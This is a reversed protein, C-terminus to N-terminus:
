GLAGCREDQDVATLAAALRAAVTQPSKMWAFHDASVGDQDAASIAILERPALTMKALLWQLSAQPGLWDADLRLSRVPVRLRALLAEFDEGMGAASYRGRRCSRAWDAIVGRAENGGFGLRRGPFHGLLAALGQALTAFLAIAWPSRFMRWYPAGSAVLLLGEPAQPHLAAYLTAIQGGLSHGGLWCRAGPFAVQAAALSAPLDDLLLERYAWNAARGARRDSSGIGRWEHLAVAIGHAALARALPLYHCAAVGLAPLWLIFDRPVGPPRLLHLDAGAGDRSLVRVVSEIPPTSAAAATSMVDPPGRNPAWRPLTRPM